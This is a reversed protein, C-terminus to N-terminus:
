CDDLRASSSNQRSRMRRKRERLRWRVRERLVQRAHEQENPNMGAFDPIAEPYVRQWIKAWREGPFQRRFKRLLGIATTVSDIGPRGRRRPKPPLLSRLLRAARDKLKPDAMFLARHQRSLQLALRAIEKRVAAPLPPTSRPRGKEKRKHKREQRREADGQIQVELDAFRPARHESLQAYGTRSPLPVLEMLEL